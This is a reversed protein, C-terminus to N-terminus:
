SRTDDTVIDVGIQSQIVKTVIKLKNIEKELDDQKAIYNAMFNLLNDVNTSIKILMDHTDSLTLHRKGCDDCLENQSQTQTKKENRWKLTADNLVKFLYGVAFIVVAFM